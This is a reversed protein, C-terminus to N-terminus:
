AAVRSMRDAGSTLVRSDPLTTTCNLVPVGLSARAPACHAFSLPASYRSPAIRAYGFWIPVGSAANNTAPAAPVNPLHSGSSWGSAPPSACTPSCTPAADASSQAASDNM